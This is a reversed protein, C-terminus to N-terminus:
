GVKKGGNNGTTVRTNRERGASDCRIGSRTGLGKNENEGLKRDSASASASAPRFNLEASESSSEPIQASKPRLIPM